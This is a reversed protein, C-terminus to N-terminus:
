KPALHKASVYATLGEFQIKAWRNKNETKIAIVKVEMGHTLSGIVSHDTGPGSRVYLVDSTVYYKKVPQGTDGAPTDMRINGRVKALHKASVYSTLGEFRIKAWRNGKEGRVSIVKVEMGHTLSGIVPYDTGPGSRVHLVDSTVYYKKVSQRVPTSEAALAPGAATPSVAPISLIVAMTMIKLVNKKM